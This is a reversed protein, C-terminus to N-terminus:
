EPRVPLCYLKGTNNSDRIYVPACNDLGYVILYDTHSPTMIIDPKVTVTADGTSVLVALLLLIVAVMEIVPLFVRKM